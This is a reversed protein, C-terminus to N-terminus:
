TPMSVLIVPLERYKPMPWLDDSVITELEDAVESPELGELIGSNIQDVAVIMRASAVEAASDDVM